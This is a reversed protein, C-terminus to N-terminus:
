YLKICFYALLSFLQEETISLIGFHQLGVENCISSDQSVQKLGNTVFLSDCTVPIFSESYLDVLFAVKLDTVVPSSDSEQGDGAFHETSDKKSSDLCSNALLQPLFL